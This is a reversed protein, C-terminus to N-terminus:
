TLVPVIDRSRLAKKGLMYKGQIRNILKVVQNDTSNLTLKMGGEELMEFVKQFVEVLMADHVDKIPEAFIYNSEYDYAIFCYQHGDLLITPLAGTADTYM